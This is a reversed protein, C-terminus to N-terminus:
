NINVNICHLIFNKNLSVKCREGSCCEEDFISFLMISDDQELYRCQFLLM